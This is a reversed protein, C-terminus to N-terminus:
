IGGDNNNSVFFLNSAAGPTLDVHLVSLNNIFLMIFRLRSALKSNGAAMILKLRFLTRVARVESPIIIPTRETTM